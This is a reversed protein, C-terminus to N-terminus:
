MGRPRRIKPCIFIEFFEKIVSIRVPSVGVYEGDAQVNKNGSIKLKNGKIKYISSSFNTKKLFLQTAIRLYVKSTVSKICLIDFGDKYINTDKTILFNGAYHSSNCVICSHCQIISDNVFIKFIEKDWNLLCKIASLIFSMKGFLRKEERKIRKVIDADVGIGAMLVFRRYFKEFQIEGISAKKIVGQTISRFSDQISKIGIEYALVNATGFPLIGLIAKKPYLGNIVENITGDGGAVLIIPKENNKCITSAYETAHGQWETEYVSSKIKFGNMKDLFIALKAVLDVRLQTLYSM